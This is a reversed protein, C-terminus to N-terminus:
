EDVSITVNEARVTIYLHPFCPSDMANFYVEDDAEELSIDAAELDSHMSVKCFSVHSFVLCVSIPYSLDRWKPYQGSHPYLNKVRVKHDVPTSLTIWVRVEDQAINHEFVTITNASLSPVDDYLQSLLTNAHVLDEWLDM